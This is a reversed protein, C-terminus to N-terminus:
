CVLLKLILGMDIIQDAEDLILDNCPLEEISQGGVISPVGIRSVQFVQYNGGWDSSCAGSYTRCGCRLTGETEND